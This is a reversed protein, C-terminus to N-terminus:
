EPGAILDPAPAPEKAYMAVIDPRKLDPLLTILLRRDRRSSRRVTSFGTPRALDDSAAQTAFSLEAPMPVGGVGFLARIAVRAAPSRSLICGLAGIAINEPLPAFRVALGAFLTERM